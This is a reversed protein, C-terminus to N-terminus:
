IALPLLIWVTVGTGPEQAAKMLGGMGHDEVVGWPVTLRMPRPYKIQYGPKADLGEKFGKPEQGGLPSAVL